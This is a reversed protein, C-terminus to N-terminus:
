SIDGLGAAAELILLVAKLDLLGPHLCTDLTSGQVAMLIYSTSSCTVAQVTRVVMSHLSLLWVHFVGQIM